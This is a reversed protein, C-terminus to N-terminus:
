IKKRKKLKFGGKTLIGWPSVSPRGGNSKGGHPHDVANMAVGRVIPRRNLNRKRGAKSYVIKRYKDNSVMGIAATEKDSLVVLKGTSLKIIVIKQRVDIKVIQASTGASKSYKIKDKLTVQDKSTVSNIVCGAPLQGLTNRYGTMSQKSKNYLDLNKNSNSVEKILTGTYQHLASIRPYFKRTEISFNNSVYASRNPDYSIGVVLSLHNNNILKSVNRYLNKCGGGRHWSTINGTISSRGKSYSFKSRCKFIRDTKLLVTKDINLYHRTGSTYAKRKILKM